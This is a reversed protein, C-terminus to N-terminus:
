IMNDCALSIFSGRSFPHEPVIFGVLYFPIFSVVQSVVPVLEMAESDLLDQGVGKTPPLIRWARAAKLMEGKVKLSDWEAM